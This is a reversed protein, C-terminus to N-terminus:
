PHPSAALTATTATSENGETDVATVSYLYGQAPIASSDHFASQAVPSRNLRVREGGPSNGTGLPERYVNYGALDSDDVPQWLLDVAFAPQAGVRAGPLPSTIFGVANLGVPAAPPYVARLTIEAPTSDGSRMELTRGGEQVIQRRVATYRYPVDRAAGTDLSRAAGASDALSSPVKGAALWIVSAEADKAKGSAMHGAAGAHSAGSHAAPPAPKGHGAGPGAAAAAALDERRLLVETGAEASTSPGPRWQLVVGLRSGQARLGQVAAPPSGALAYSPPSYGATRGATNFLKVRYAVPRPPGSALAPSLADHWAVQNANLSAASGKPAAPRIAIATRAPLEAVPECPSGISLERCVAGQLSVDRLPLGDTSRVPATFTLEVSNGARAAALDNVVAPLHLSPPHPSGPSACGGCALAAGALVAAM